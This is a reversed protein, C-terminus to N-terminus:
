LDNIIEEKKLICETTILLGAVSSANRMASIVVLAPDIVGAEIMDVYEGTRANFGYAELADSGDMVKSVVMDGNYGSNEAILKLPSKVSEAVLEVGAKFGVEQTSDLVIWKSAMTLAAGGGPLIGSNIACKVACIADDIRDKKEKIELITSGGAKLVGIGGNLSALRIELNRKDNGTATKLEEELLRSRNQIDEKKGEGGIILTNKRSVIVRRASGADAMRVNELMKTARAGFIETGVMAAIDGLLQDKLKGFSPTKVACIPYNGKTKNLILTNLVEDEFTEAILLIPRKGNSIVEQLFPSIKSLHAMKGDFVLIVPNELVCTYNETNIFHDHYFGRDFMLGDLIEVGVEHLPWEEVTLIGYKGVQKIAEDIKTAIEVDGNASVLAIKYVDNESIEQACVKLRECIAKSAYDIGRKIDMPNYGATILKMSGKVIADTLVTVTTTGDGAEELQKEAAGRAIRVGINEYQDTVRVERAVTVGDKTIRPDGYRADIVVNRGKPGLTVGVAKALTEVGKALKARAADDFMILDEKENM